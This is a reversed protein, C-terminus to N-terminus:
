FGIIYHLHQWVFSSNSSCVWFKWFLFDMKSILNSKSLKTQVSFFYLHLCFTFNNLWYMCEESREKRKCLAYVKRTFIRQSSTKGSSSMWKLQWEVFTQNYAIFYYMGQSHELTISGLLVEWNKGSRGASSGDSDKLQICFSKQM